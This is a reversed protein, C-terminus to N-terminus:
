LNKLKLTHIDIETKKLTCYFNYKLGKEDTRNTPKVKIVEITFLAAVILKLCTSKIIWNRFRKLLYVATSIYNHFSGNAQV